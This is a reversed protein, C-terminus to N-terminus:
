TLYDSVHGSRKVQSLNLRLLLLLLIAELKIYFYISIDRLHLGCDQLLKRLKLM